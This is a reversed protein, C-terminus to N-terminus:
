PFTPYIDITSGGTVSYNGGTSWTVDHAAQVGRDAWGPCAGDGVGVCRHRRQPCGAGRDVGVHRPHQNPAQPDHPRRTHRAIPMPSRQTWALLTVLDFGPIVASDRAVPRTSHDRTRGHVIGKPRGRIDPGNSWRPRIEIATGNCYSLPFGSSSPFQLPIAPLDTPKSSGCALPRLGLAAVDEQKAARRLEYHIPGPNSEGVRSWSFLLDYPAGVATSCAAQHRM